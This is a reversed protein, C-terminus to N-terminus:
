NQIFPLSFLRNCIKTNDIHEPVNDYKNIGDLKKDYIIRRKKNTLIYKAEKLIKIENIMQKTLFPLNNFRSIHFNYANIIKEEDADNDVKLIKYYNKM